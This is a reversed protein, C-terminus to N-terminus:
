NIEVHSELTKILGDVRNIDDIEISIAENPCVTECRGCGLCRMQDIKAIGDIVEMGRFVCVELCEECGSCLSEDVKVTVGEMRHFLDISISSNTLIVGDICCCPCCFCASLFHGTDEIGFGESEVMARGILPILGNDVALQVRELAEEKTVVRGKDEAIVLDVTDEGMYMCGLSKDFDHCDKSRRCGCDNLMVINSAKDIFHKFVKVPIVQSEYKGLSQNIPLFVGYDDEGLLLKVIGRFMPLKSLIFPHHDHKLYATVFLKSIRKNVKGEDTDVTKWGLHKYLKISNKYGPARM